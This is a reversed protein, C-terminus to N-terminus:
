TSCSVVLLISKLDKLAIPVFNDCKASKRSQDNSPRELEDLRMTALNTKPSFRRVVIQNDRSADVVESNVAM